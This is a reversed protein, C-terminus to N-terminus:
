GPRRKGFGTAQEYAHAIRLLEWEGQHRGVIQMGVPLGEATFGCPVSIAPNGLASIYYCTKMWDIYTEMKVGEVERVFEQTVDFPPVQTSPLVFFQYRELFRQFRGYLATRLAEARSLQPGTLKAGREVEWIVTDKVLERRTRVLEAYQAHFLWARFTKFAEDAGAFDPEADEVACGLAEFAKRQANVAQSVRRDFPVGGLSKFWAVRTGKLERELPGAFKAGSEAISIPSRADWGAIASLFFAVDSASRAM